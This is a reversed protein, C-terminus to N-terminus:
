RAVEPRTTSRKSKTLSVRPKRRFRFLTALNQLALAAHKVAHAEQGTRHALFLTSVTLAYEAFHHHIDEYLFVLFEIVIM